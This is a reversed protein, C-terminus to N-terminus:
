LGKPEVLAIAWSLRLWKLWQQCLAALQRWVVLLAVLSLPTLLTALRSYLVLSIALLVRSLVTLMLVGGSHTRCFRWAMRIAGHREDRLVIMVRAYEFIVNLFEALVLLLIIRLQASIGLLNLLWALTFTLLLLSTVALLGLLTFPWFFRRCGPWFPRRNAYRSLVGGAFFNYAVATALLVAVFSLLWGIGLPLLQNVGSETFLDTLSQGSPDLALERLFPRHLIGNGWALYLPWLALLSFLITTAWFPLISRWERMARRWGYSLASRM